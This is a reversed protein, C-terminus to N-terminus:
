RFKRGVGARKLRDHFTSRSMGLRRAASARNNGEEGIVRTFFTRTDENPFRRALPTVPRVPKKTVVAVKAPEGSAFLSDTFELDAARVIDGDVMISARVIVNRLERVNGPYRYARLARVAGNDLRLHRGSSALFHEALPLIDEPRDALAPLKVTLVLLRHLLDERFRGDRVQQVLNRHTAAVVRVNVPTEKSAGVLRVAGTELVRLLKPQLEAPLEGIEDLFITGGEAAQFAGQRTSTAGTFAGKTHGFLESEILSASLAGCNIAIFPADRRPSEDHLARAALEKGTGSPGTVLVPASAAALRRIRNFVIQMAGSKAIMGGVSSNDEARELRRRISLVYEGVQVADGDDLAVPEDGIAEGNVIARDGLVSRVCIRGSEDHCLM